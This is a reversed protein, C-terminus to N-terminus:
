LNLIDPPARLVTLTSSPRTPCVMAIADLVIFQAAGSAPDPLLIQTLKYHYDAVKSQFAHFGGAETIDVNELPARSM